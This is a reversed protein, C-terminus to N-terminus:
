HDMRVERHVDQSPNSDSDSSNKSRLKVPIEEPKKGRVSWLRQAKESLTGGCKLGMASLAEKLRNAGLAELEEVSNFM